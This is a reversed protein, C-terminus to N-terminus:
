YLEIIIIIVIISIPPIKIFLFLIISSITAKIRIIDTATEAIEKTKASVAMISM